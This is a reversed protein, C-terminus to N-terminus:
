RAKAGSSADADAFTDQTRRRLLSDILGAALLERIRRLRVFRASTFDDYTLGHRTYAGALEDIGDRVQWRLKLDPFTDNLKAFDVRYNRLDPGAGDALTVTSGPVAAAVLDAIQSVQV